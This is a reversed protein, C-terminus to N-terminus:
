RDNNMICILLEPPILLGYHILTISNSPSIYLLCQCPQGKALYSDWSCLPQNFLVENQTASNLIM